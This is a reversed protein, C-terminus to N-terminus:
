VPLANFRDVIGYTATTPKAINVILQSAEKWIRTEGAWTSAITGWTEGISAKVENTMGGTGLAGAILKFTSGVLLRFGDGVNLYTQPVGVNPKDQNIM